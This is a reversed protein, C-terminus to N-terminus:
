QSMGKLLQISRAMRETLVLSWVDRVMLSLLFVLTAGVIYRAFLVNEINPATAISAVHFTLLATFVCVDAAFRTWLGIYTLFSNQHRIWIYSMFALVPGGICLGLWIGYFRNSILMDFAPPTQSSIWLRIGAGFVFFYLVPQYAMVRWEKTFYTNLRAILRHQM